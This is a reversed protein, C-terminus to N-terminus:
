GSNQTIFYKEMNRAQEETLWNRKICVSLAMGISDQPVITMAELIEHYEPQKQSATNEIEEIISATIKLHIFIDSYEELFALFDRDQHKEALNLAFDYIDLDRFIINKLDAGMHKMLALIKASISNDSASILKLHVLDIHSLISIATEIDKTRTVLYKFLLSYHARSLLSFYSSIVEGTKGTMLNDKHIMTIQCNFLEYLAEHTFGPDQLIRKVIDQDIVRFYYDTLWAFGADSTIRAALLAPSLLEIEKEIKRFSPIPSDYLKVLSEVPDNM